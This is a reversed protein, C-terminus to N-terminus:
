SRKKTDQPRYIGLEAEHLMNKASLIIFLFLFATQIWFIPLDTLGHVLVVAIFSCILALRRRLQPFQRMKNLIKAFPYFAVTLLGSGIIGYSLLTDLVINHAHQTYKEGYDQWINMFTLPGQGFWINDKLGKVAVDWIVFRDEFAYLIDDMRPLLNLFYLITLLVCAGLFSYIATQKFGDVYLFVFVAAVVVLLATRSGTFFLTTLNCLTIFTYALRKRWKSTKFFKYFGIMIFFELMMAYYNPNFFTAEVRNRHMRGMAKSIFTYDWEPIYNFHELFAFIFVVFSSILAINLLEEFYYPKITTQYYYFYFILLIFAFSIGIGVYNQYIISILISYAVFVWLYPSANQRSDFRRFAGLSALIICEVIFVIVTIYFPFFNSVFLIALLTRNLHWTVDMLQNEETLPSGGM